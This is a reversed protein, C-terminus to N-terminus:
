YRPLETTRNLHQPIKFFLWFIQINILKLAGMPSIELFDKLFVIKQKQQLLYHNKVKMNRSLKGSKPFLNEMVHDNLAGDM